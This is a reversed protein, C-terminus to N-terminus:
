YGPYLLDERDKECHTLQMELLSLQEEIKDLRQIARKLDSRENKLVGLKVRIEVIKDELRFFEEMGINNLSAM